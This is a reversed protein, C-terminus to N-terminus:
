QQGPRWNPDVLEGANLEVVSHYQVAALDAYGSRYVGNVTWVHVVRTGPNRVTYTRSVDHCHLIPGTGNGVNRPLRLTGPCFCTLARGVFSTDDHYAM